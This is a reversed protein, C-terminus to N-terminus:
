RPLARPIEPLWANREKLLNKTAQIRSVNRGPVMENTSGSTDFLVIFNDVNRILDNTTVTEKEVMEQTIIQFAQVLNPTGIALLGTIVLLVPIMRKVIM